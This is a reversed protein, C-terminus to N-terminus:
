APAQATDSALQCDLIGAGCMTTCVLFTPEFPSPAELCAQCSRNSGGSGCLPPSFTHVGCLQGRIKGRTGHCTEGVDYKHACVCIRDVVSYVDSLFRNM